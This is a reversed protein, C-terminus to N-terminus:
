DKIGGCGSGSSESSVIFLQKSEIVVREFKENLLRIPIETCRGCGLVATSDSGALAMADNIMGTSSLLHTEADIEIQM